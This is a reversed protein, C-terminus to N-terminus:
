KQGWRLTTPRAHTNHHLPRVKSDFNTTVSGDRLQYNDCSQSTKVMFSKKLSLSSKFQCQCNGEHDFRGVVHNSLLLEVKRQEM